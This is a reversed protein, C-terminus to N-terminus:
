VITILVNVQLCEDYYTLRDDLQNLEEVSKDILSLLDKAQQESGM